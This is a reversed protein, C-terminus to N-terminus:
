LLVLLVDLSLSMYVSRGRLLQKTSQWTPPVLGVDKFPFHLSNEEADLTPPPQAAAMSQPVFQHGPM